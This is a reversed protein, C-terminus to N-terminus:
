GCRHTIESLPAANQNPRPASVALTPRLDDLFWGYSTQAYDIPAGLDIWRAFLMKEDTTLAPVTSGPPPMITGTFDLDAANSDAGAPLTSANGPVSETPHDANTWGDLRQGFLKWMLLSRRSQFMRIYRSANSQRWVPTGVRM